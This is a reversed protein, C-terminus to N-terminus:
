SETTITQMVEMVAMPSIPKRIVAAVGDGRLDEEERENTISSIVVLPIATLRPSSKVHRIFVRGSMEPMNLDTLILDAPETRLLQLAERGNSAERFQADALGAIELCRRIMMRATLSDDVILINKVM